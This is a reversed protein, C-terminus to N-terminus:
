LFSTFWKVLSNFGTTELEVDNEELLIEESGEEFVEDNMEISYDLSYNGSNFEESVNFEVPTIVTTVIQDDAPEEIEILAEINDDNVEMSEEAITYGGTNACYLGSVIVQTDNVEVDVEQSNVEVDGCVTEADSETHDAEIDSDVQVASFGAALVTLSLLILALTPYKLKM